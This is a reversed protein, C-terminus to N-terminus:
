ADRLSWVTEAGRIGASRARCKVKKASKLERLTTDVKRFPVDGGLRQTLQASTAEKTQLEALIRGALEEDM